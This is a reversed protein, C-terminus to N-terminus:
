RYLDIVAYAALGLLTGALSGKLGQRLNHGRARREFGAAYADNYQYLPSSMQRERIRVTPVNATLAFLPPVAVAWISLRSAYGAALGTGFGAALWGLGRHATRADRSGMMYDHAENLTFENGRVPDTYYLIRLGGDLCHIAYLEERLAKGPKLVRPLAMARPHFLTTDFPNGSARRTRLNMRERKFQSREYYFRLDTYSSDNLSYAEVKRGDMMYLLCPQQAKALHSCLMALIPLIYKM